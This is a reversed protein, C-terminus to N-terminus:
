IAQALQEHGCNVTYQLWKVLESEVAAAPIHRTMYKICLGM